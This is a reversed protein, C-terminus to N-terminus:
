QEPQRSTTRVYLTRPDTAGDAQVKGTLIKQGADENGSKDAEDYFSNVTEWEQAPVKTLSLWTYCQSQATCESQRDHQAYFVSFLGYPPRARSTRHLYPGSWHGQFGQKVRSKDWLATLDEATDESGEPKEVTFMYFTGLDAQYAALANSIAEVDAVLAAQRAAQIRSFGVFGAIVVLTSFITLAIRADLGFM